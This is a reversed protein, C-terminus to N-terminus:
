GDSGKMVRIGEPQEGPATVGRAPAQKDASQAPQSQAAASTDFLWTAQVAAAVLFGIPPIALINRKM